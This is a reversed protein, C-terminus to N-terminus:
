GGQSQTQSSRALADELEKLNNIAIEGRLAVLELSQSKVAQKIDQLSFETRDVLRADADRAQLRLQSWHPDIQSAHSDAAKWNSRYAEALAALTEYKVQFLEPPISMNISKAVESFDRYLTIAAMLSDDLNQQGIAKSLQELSKELSDRAAMSLGGKVAEPELTNWNRLINKLSATEDQWTNVNQTKQQAGAGQSAPQQKPQNQTENQGQGGQKNQGEEQSGKQNQRGTQDQGAEQSQGAGAKSSQQAQEQAAAGTMAPVKKVSTRKELSAILKNVEKLIVSAESPPQASGGTNEGPKKATNKNNCAPAFFMMIALAFVIVLVGTAKKGM